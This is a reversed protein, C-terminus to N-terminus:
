SKKLLPLLRVFVSGFSCAVSQCSETSNEIENKSELLIRSGSGIEALKEAANHEALCEV